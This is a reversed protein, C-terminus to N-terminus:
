SWLPFREATALASFPQDIHDYLSQPPFKISFDDLPRQDIPLNPLAQLREVVQAATLRQTPDQTWCTEVVDWMEDSLGRNSSLEHSPRTPRKGRMVGFMVRVDHPNEYFPVQGAFMQLKTLSQIEGIFHSCSRTVSVHLRM